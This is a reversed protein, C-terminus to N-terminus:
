WVSNKGKLTNVFQINRMKGKSGKKDAFHPKCVQSKGRGLTRIQRKEDENKWSEGKARYFMESIIALPGSM